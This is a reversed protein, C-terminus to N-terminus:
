ATKTGIDIAPIMGHKVPQGAQGAIVIQVAVTARETLQGTERAMDKEHDRLASILAKDVKYVTVGAKSDRALLGSAGGACEDAMEEAREQVILDLREARDQIRLQRHKREALIPVDALSDLSLKALADESPGPKRGLYSRRNSQNRLLAPKIFQQYYRRIAWIGLTPSSWKSISAYAEGALLAAIIPGRQPHEDISSTPKLKRRELTAEPTEDPPISSPIADSALFLDLERALEDAM